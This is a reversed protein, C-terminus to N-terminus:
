VGWRAEDYSDGIIDRGEEVLPSSFHSASGYDPLSGLEKVVATKRTEIVMVTMLAAMVIDMRVQVQADTCVFQPPTKGDGHFYMVAMNSQTGHPDKYQGNEDTEPNKMQPARMLM